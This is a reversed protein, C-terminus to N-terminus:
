LVCCAPLGLFMLQKGAPRHRMPHQWRGAGGARPPRQPGRGGRGGRGRGKGGCCSSNCVGETLKRAKGKNRSKKEATKGTAPAHTRGYGVPVFPMLEKRTRDAPKPCRIKVPFSYQNDPIWLLVKIHVFSLLDCWCMHLKVHQLLLVVCACVCILDISITLM